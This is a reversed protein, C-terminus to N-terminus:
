FQRMVLILCALQYVGVLVLCNRPQRVRRKKFHHSEVDASQKPNKASRRLRVEAKKMVVLRHAGDCVDFRGDAVISISRHTLASTRGNRLLPGEFIGPGHQISEKIFLTPIIFRAFRRIEARAQRVGHGSVRQYYL